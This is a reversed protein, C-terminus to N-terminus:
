RVRNYWRALREPAVGCFYALRLAWMLLVTRVVGGQQWRRASTRVKLASCFPVGHSKMRKSFAVDEMLPLNPFGATELFLPRDVFIAQDGTAISSLRSRVNMFTAIVSMAVDIRSAPIFEVDFRGWFYNRNRANRIERKAGEPLQTDAHLFLVMNTTAAQAGANMQRARGTDTQLIKCHPVKDAVHQQLWEVTGDTSGGDVLIVEDAGTEALHRMLVPLTKLENLLPVVICLSRSDNDAM